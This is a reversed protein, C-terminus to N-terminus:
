GARIGFIEGRRKVITARALRPKDSGDRVVGGDPELRALLGKARAVDAPSPDMSEIIVAPQDQDLCLKGTMSMAVADATQERLAPHTSAVTPGDIPRPLGGIQAPCCLTPAHKPWPSLSTPRAHRPPLRRLRSCLRFAVRARAIDVANEIGLASEILPVIPPDGGLHQYTDTVQEATETKALIVGTVGPAGILAALDASWAATTWGNIRIWASSGAHLWDIVNGRAASKLPDDIADGLDLIIQDAWGLM